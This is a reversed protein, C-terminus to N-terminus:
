KLTTKQSGGNLYFIYIALLEHSLLVFTIKEFERYEAIFNKVTEVAIKAAEEKPYGYVGASIAPFAITKCHYDKALTLSARYADALLKAENHHGDKWRPGVAHLVYQSPLNYGRTIVASGTPCGLYKAKLEDMMDPGGARHIAGDVGGGGSLHSNAANVIADGKQLTIDGLIAELITKNKQFTM